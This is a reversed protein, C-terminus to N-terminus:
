KALRLGGDGDNIGQLIYKCYDTYIEDNGFDNPVVLKVEELTLAPNAEVDMARAAIKNWIDQQQQESDSMKKRNHTIYYTAIFPHYM